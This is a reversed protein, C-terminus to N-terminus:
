SYGTCAKQRRYLSCKRHTSGLHPAAPRGVAHKSERPGASRKGPCPRGAALAVERAEGRARRAAAPIQPMPHSADGGRGETRHQGQHFPAPRTGMKNQTVEEGHHVTTRDERMGTPSMPPPSMRAWTHRCVCVRACRACFDGERRPGDRGRELADKSSCFFKLHVRLTIWNIM